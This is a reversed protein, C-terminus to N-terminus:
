KKLSKILGMLTKRIETLNTQLEASISAKIYKLNECIILQTEIETASGLSIYLFQCFEKDSFRAAGEAINSPISIAARRIQNVIGYIEEKPFEKTVTYIKTVFEISKKWAILDKHTKM